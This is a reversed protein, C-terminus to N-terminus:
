FCGMASRLRSGTGRTSIMPRFGPRIRARASKAMSSRKSRISASPHTPRIPSSCSICATRSYAQAHPCHTLLPPAVVHPISPPLAYTATNVTFTLRRSIHPRFQPIRTSNTNTAPTATARAKKRLKRRVVSPVIGTLQTKAGCRECTSWERVCVWLCRASRVEGM